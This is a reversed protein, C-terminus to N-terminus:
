KFITTQVFTSGGFGRKFDSIRSEKERNEKDYIQEGVEFSQCGISKAQNIAKWILIHSIPKDFLERNSASVSYYCSNDSYQFLASTILEGGKEGLVVFAEDNKIMDYQIHWTKKSRTKRGSVQIHLNRFNEIDNWSINRSTAIRVKINKTAWNIAAKHGKRFDKKINSISQNLDINQLLNVSANCHCKMFILAMPSLYPQTNLFHIKKVNACSIINQIYKNLINQIRKKCPLSLEGHEQYYAPLGYYGLESTNNNENASITLGILCYVQNEDFVICSVDEFKTAHNALSYEAYFEKSLSSHLPHLVKDPFYECKLMAFHSENIITIKM